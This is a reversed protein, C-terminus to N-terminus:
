HQLLFQLAPTEPEIGPFPLFKLLCNRGATHYKKPWRSDDMELLYGYWKLQRRQIIDLISQEAQMKSKLTTNSIKQLRSVRTSRRLYDMELASLKIQEETKLLWVECGYCAVSEVM